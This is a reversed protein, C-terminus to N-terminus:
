NFICIWSIGQCTQKHDEDNLDTPEKNIKSPPHLKLLEFTCYEIWNLKNDKPSVVWRFAFYLLIARWVIIHINARGVIIHM